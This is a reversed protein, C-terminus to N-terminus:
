TTAVSKSGPAFVPKGNHDFLPHGNKDLLQSDPANFMPRRAWDLRQQGHEDLMPTPPLVVLETPGTYPAEKKNKGLGFLHHAPKAADPATGVSSAVSWTIAEPPPIELKAHAPKAVVPTATASSTASSPAASVGSEGTMPSSSAILQQAYTFQVSGLMLAFIPSILLAKNTKM